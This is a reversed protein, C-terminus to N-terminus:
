QQKSKKKSIPMRGPNYQASGTIVKGKAAAFAVLDVVGTRDKAPIDGFLRRREKMLMYRKHKRSANGSM